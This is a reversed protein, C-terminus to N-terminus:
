CEGAARFPSLLRDSLNRQHPALPLREQQHFVFLLRVDGTTKMDPNMSSVSQTFARNSSPYRKRCFGTRM